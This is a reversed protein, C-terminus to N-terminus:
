QIHDKLDQLFKSQTQMFSSYMKEQILKSVSPTLILHAYLDSDVTEAYIHVGHYQVCKM